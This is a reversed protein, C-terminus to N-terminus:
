WKNPPVIGVATLISDFSFIIDLLIIQFITGAFTVAAAKGVPNMTM